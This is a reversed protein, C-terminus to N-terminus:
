YFHQILEHTDKRWATVLYVYKIKVFIAVSLLLALVSITYGLYTLKKIVPLWEAYIPDIDPVEDNPLVTEIYYSGCETLNTWPTEYEDHIM